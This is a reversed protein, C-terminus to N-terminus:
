TDNILNFRSNLKINVKIYGVPLTEMELPLTLTLFLFLFHLFLPSHPLFPLSEGVKGREDCEFIRKHAM